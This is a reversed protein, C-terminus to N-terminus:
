GLIYLRHEDMRAAVLSPTEESLYTQHEAEYVHMNRCLTHVALLKSTVNFKEYEFSFISM